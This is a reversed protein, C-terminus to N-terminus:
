QADSYVEEYFSNGGQKGRRKTSLIDPADPVNESWYLM